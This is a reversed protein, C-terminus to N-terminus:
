NPYLRRMLMDLLFWEEDKVTPELKVIRDAVVNIERPIWSLGVHEAHAFDRVVEQNVVGFNDCLIHCHAYDHRAAYMVAYVVAYSEAMHSGTVAGQLALIHTLNNVTDYLSIKAQEDKIMADVYIIRRPSKNAM